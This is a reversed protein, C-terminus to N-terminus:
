ECCVMFAKMEARTLLETEAITGHEVVQVHGQGAEAEDDEASLGDWDDESDAGDESEENDELIAKTEAVLPKFKAEFARRFINQLEQANAEEDGAATERRSYAISAEAKDTRKRKRKGLLPAM